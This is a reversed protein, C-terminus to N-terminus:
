ISLVLLAEIHVHCSEELACWGALKQILCYELLIPMLEVWGQLLRTILNIKLSEDEGLRPLGHLQSDNVTILPCGVFPLLQPHISQREAAAM